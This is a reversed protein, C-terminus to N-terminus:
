IIMQRYETVTRGDSRLFFVSLARIVWMATGEIFIGKGRVVVAYAM